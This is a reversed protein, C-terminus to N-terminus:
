NTMLVVFISMVAISTIILPTDGSKTVSAIYAGLGDAELTTGGWNALEVVISANWAEGAATCAGPVWFPFIAPLILTRWLDWNRLGFVRASEKLDNPIAMAGAIVNFLIYWQTGM